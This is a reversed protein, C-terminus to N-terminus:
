VGANVAASVVCALSFLGVIGIAIYAFIEDM